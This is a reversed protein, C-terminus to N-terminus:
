IYVQSDQPMIMTFVFLERVWGDLFCPLMTTDVGQPAGQSLYYCCEVLRCQVLAICQQAISVIGSGEFNMMKMPWVSNCLTAEVMIRPWNLVMFLYPSNCAKYNPGLHRSIYILLVMGRHPGIYHVSPPM